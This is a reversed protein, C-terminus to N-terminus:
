APRKPWNSVIQLIERVWNCECAVPCPELSGQRVCLGPCCEQKTKRRAVIPLPSLVTFEKVPIALTTGCNKHQHNFYFLGGELDESAVQYGVLKLEPDALFDERTEWQQSCTTCIKFPNAKM